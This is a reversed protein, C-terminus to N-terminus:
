ASVGGVWSMEPNVPVHGDALAGDRDNRGAVLDPLSTAEMMRARAQQMTAGAATAGSAHAGSAVEPPSAPVCTVYVFSTCGIRIALHAGQWVVSLRPMCLM